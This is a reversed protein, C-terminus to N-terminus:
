RCPVLVALLVQCQAARFYLKKTPVDRTLDLPLLEHEPMALLEWGGAQLHSVCELRTWHMKYVGARPSTGVNRPQTCCLAQEGNAPRKCDVAVWFNTRCLAGVWCLSWTHLRRQPAEWEAGVGLYCRQDVLRQVCELAVPSRDALAHESHGADADNIGHM